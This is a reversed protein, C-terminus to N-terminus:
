NAAKALRTQNRFRWTVTGAPMVEKVAIVVDGDRTETTRIQAAKDGDEGAREYIVTWHAADTFRQTSVRDTENEVPRGKRLSATTVTGGTSDYLSASTIYVQGVKPGDDFASIRLVTVTDPLALIETKVALEFLKDSQYDRYGLAGVWKGALGAQLVAPAPSLTAAMPAGALAGALLLLCIM